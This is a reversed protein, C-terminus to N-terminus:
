AQMWDAVFAPSRRMFRGTSAPGPRDPLLFNAEDATLCEVGVADEETHGLWGQRSVRHRDCWDLHRVDAPTAALARGCRRCSLDDDTM